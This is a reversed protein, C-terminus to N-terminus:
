DARWRSGPRPTQPLRGPPAEGRGLEPRRVEVQPPNRAPTPHRHPRRDRRPPRRGRERHHGHGVQPRRQLLDDGRGARRCSPSSRSPSSGPRWSASCSSARPSTRPCSWAAKATPRAPRGPRATRPPVRSSTTAPWPSRRRRTPCSGCAPPSDVGAQPRRRVDQGQRRGQEHVPQPHRLHDQLDRGRGGPIRGPPVDQPHHDPAPHGGRAQLLRPGPPVRLRHSRGARGPRGVPAHGGPRPDEPRGRVGRRDRGVPRVRRPRAAVDGPPRRGRRARRPPLAPRDHRDRLRVRPRRIGPRGQRGGRALLSRIFTQGRALARQRLQKRSLHLPREARRALVTPVRPVVVM